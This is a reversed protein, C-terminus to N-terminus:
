GSRPRVRAVFPIVLGGLREKVLTQSTPKAARGGVRPDALGPRAHGIAGLALGAALLTRVWLRGRASRRGDNSCRRDCADVTGDPNGPTAREILAM